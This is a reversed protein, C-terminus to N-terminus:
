NVARWAHGQALEALTWQHAAVAAAWQARGDPLWPSEIRSLDTLAMQSAACVGLAFVPVGAILAENAAASSYAVLAWANLLARALSAKSGKSTRVIPRTTYRRLTRCVTDAWHEQYGIVTRMFEDSQACVVIHEGDQRWPAITGRFPPYDRRRFSSLQVCNKAVRFRQERDLDFFANDIYYWDRGEAIAQQWLRAWSPRVGYFAAAGPELM